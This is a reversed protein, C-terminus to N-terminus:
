LSRDLTIKRSFILHANHTKGIYLADWQSKCMYDGTTIFIILDLKKKLRLILFFKNYLSKTFM